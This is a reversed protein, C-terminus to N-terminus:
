KLITEVPLAIEPLAQLTITEGSRYVTVQHGRGGQPQRYVEISRRSLNVLWSRPIGAQAYLPLKVKRDCTLTTEAVEVLLLVDSPGPIGSEYDDSRFRILAVDPESYPSLRIPNQVSVIFREGARASFERNLRNVCAFHRDGVAAMQILEGDLLEVRDDEHLIRVRGM